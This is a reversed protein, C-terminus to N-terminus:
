RTMVSSTEIFYIKLMQNTNECGPVKIERTLDFSVEFREAANVMQQLTANIPDYSVMMNKTNEDLAKEMEGMAGIFSHIKERDAEEKIINQDNDKIAQARRTPNPRATMLALRQVVETASKKADSFKDTNFQGLATLKIFRQSHWQLPDNMIATCKQGLTAIRDDKIAPNFDALKNVDTKISSLFEIQEQSPLNRIVDRKPLRLTLLIRSNLTLEAEKTFRGEVNIVGFGLSDVRIPKTPKEDHLKLPLGLEFYKAGPKSLSEFNVAEDDDEDPVATSDSIISQVHQTEADPQHISVTLTLETLDKFPLVKIESNSSFHFPKGQVLAQWTVRTEPEFATRQLLIARRKEIKIEIPWWRLLESAVPDPDRSGDPLWSFTLSHDPGDPLAVDPSIPEISYEGLVLPPTQGAVIVQWKNSPSTPSRRIELHTKVREFFPKAEPCLGLEIPKGSLRLPLADSSSMKRPIPLKLLLQGHKDNWLENSKIFAFPGDQELQKVRDAKAKAAMTESRLRAELEETQKKDAAMKEDNVKKRAAADAALKEVKERELQQRRDIEARELAIRAEEDETQRQDQPVAKNVLDAFPDNNKSPSLFILVGTVTVVIMALTLGIWVGKRSNVRVPPPVDRPPQPKDPTELPTLSPKPKPISVDAVTDKISIDAATRSRVTPATPTPAPEQPTLQGKRAMAVLTGGTAAPLSSTLDIVRARADNRLSTAEPTDNLVFRLQCEAGALLRTFYTSFTVNWRQPAPILDLVEGVLTLTDTGPKFIISVPAPNQLLQEAVAGAWGEDGTLNQWAVLSISAPLAACRLERPPVNRVNGDWREVIVGPEAMLRAPGAPMSAVNDIVLHHALKNSRGTYDQGADAVRSIVHLSKGALRTTVHSFCVPNLSAQPDHLPFAHRYGSMSELREALALSMGATSVVTCFGRSGQKLGKEASTYVIEEVV